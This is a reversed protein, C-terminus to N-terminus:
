IFYRGKAEKSNVFSYFELGTMEIWCIDGGESLPDKKRFYQTAM